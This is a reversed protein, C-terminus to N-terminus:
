GAAVEGCLVSRMICYLYSTEWEYPYSTERVPL